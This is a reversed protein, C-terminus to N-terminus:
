QHCKKFQAAIKSDMKKMMTNLETRQQTNLIALIQNKAMIQAKIMNGILKTKKDVLSDVTAQDMPTSDLQQNIQADLDKMQTGNDKMRSRLQDLIPKIKGKQSNDLKLSGVMEEMGKRCSWSDAFATQSLVFSFALAGIWLIKKYMLQGQKM